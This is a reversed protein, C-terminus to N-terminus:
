IERSKVSQNHNHKKTVVPPPTKTDSFVMGNSIAEDIAKHAALSLRGRGSKALGLSIAYEKKTTVCVGEKTSVRLIAPGVSLIM